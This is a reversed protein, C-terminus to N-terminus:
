IHKWQKRNKILSILQNSVGYEDAIIQQNRTDVRILFVQSETLKSRGNKEGRKTVASQLGTDYAHQSNESRTAWELNEVRNDTKIGNIHNVTAKNELNPIFAQAVLRHIKKTHAKGNICLNVIPYGNADLGSKLKRLKRNKNQTPHYVDSFINGLEDVYYGEFGETEKM